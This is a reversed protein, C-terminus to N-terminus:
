NIELRYVSQAAGMVFYLTNRGQLVQSPAADILLTSSKTSASWRYIKGQEGFVVFGGSTGYFVSSMATSITNSTGHVLAKLAKHTSSTEMWALVGDHLQFSENANVSVTSVTGGAVAQSLITSGAPCTATGATCVTNGGVPSQLWAVTQGDTQPYISRMGGNSLKTSNNTASSWKYVDFVSNTGDGGTQAWYFFVVNNSGDVFFDYATNGLYKAGVPQTITSYAGTAVNYRTYTGTNAGAADIWIVFGGHAQPYQQYARGGGVNSTIANSNATSLNTKVGTPGWQYICDLPCDAYGAATSGLFGGEVFVYGDDMAWNYLYPISSAGQLTVETNATTNRVRYSNDDAKYLVLAPNADDMAILRGNVGMSFNPTYALAPNTTVTVTRQIVTVANTSDTARVTLTYAGPNLGALSMSGTFAQSTASMFQYDGLSALVTVVGPKDTTTSGSLNLTGNVFAGDAPSTLTLTALNSIPVQVTTSKSNGATDTATVVMTHNGSGATTANVSFRFVNNSASCGFRGSCANPATLTGLSVGDFTAEVRAIGFQSSASADINITGTTGSVSASVALNSNSVLVSRRVESYSDAAVEIKALILHAGNTQTSTNWTIPHGLGTGTGILRLDAYWYVKAYSSTDGLSLKVSGSVPETQDVVIDPSAGPAAVSVTSQGQPTAIAVTRSPLVAIVRYITAVTVARQWQMPASAGGVGSVTEILSFTGDPNQSEIRYTTDAAFSDSWQLSVMNTALNVTSTLKSQNADVRDTIIQKIDTTSATHALASVVETLQLVNLKVKLTDILKDQLDGTTPSVTTAAILPTSIFNGIANTDVTGNLVLAVDAQAAQVTATTLTRTAISSDFASFFSSPENGLARATVMETLPTINATATTATGTVVSHLKAASVPDTVQLICPLSAGEIVMRYTGNAQSAAAGTGTQCKATIAAGGLALGNAATGNITLTQGQHTNAVPTSPSGGGGGGCATLVATCALLCSFLHKKFNM